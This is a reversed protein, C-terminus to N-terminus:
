WPVVLNGRWQEMPPVWGCQRRCENWCKVICLDHWFGWSVKYGHAPGSVLICIAGCEEEWSAAKDNELRTLPLFSYTDVHCFVGLLYATLCLGKM